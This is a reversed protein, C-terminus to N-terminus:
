QQHRLQFPRAPVRRLSGLIWIQMGAPQMPLCASSWLALLMVNDPEDSASPRVMLRTLQQQERNHASSFM